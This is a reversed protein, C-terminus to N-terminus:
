KNKLVEEIQEESWSNPLADFIPEHWNCRRRHKNDFYDYSFHNNLPPLAWLYSLEPKLTIPNRRFKLKGKEYSVDVYLIEGAYEEYKAWSKLDCWDRFYLMASIINNSITSIALGTGEALDKRSYVYFGQEDPEKGQSLTKQVYYVIEAASGQM